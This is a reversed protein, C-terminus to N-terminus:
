RAGVNGFAQCCASTSLCNTDVTGCLPDTCQCSNVFPNCGYGDGCGGGFGCSGWAFSIPSFALVLSAMSALMLTKM